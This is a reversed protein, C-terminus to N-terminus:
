PRTIGENKWFILTTRRIRPDRRVFLLQAAAPRQLPVHQTM